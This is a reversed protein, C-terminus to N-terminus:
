SIVSKVQHLLKKRDIAQLFVSLTEELTLDSNDVVLADQPIVLPAVARHMDRWDREELNKVVKQFDQETYLKSLDYVRRRARVETCATLYFKFDADPFVVTGCDRGDAVLDYQKGIARQVALLKNRVTLVTSIKSSYQSIMDNFLKDTINEQKYFITPIGHDDVYTLYDIFNLDSDSFTFADLTQSSFFADGHVQQLVYAVARYLLGTNLCHISLRQALLKALSSKGSATPGDITIIM